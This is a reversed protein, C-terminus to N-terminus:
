RRLFSPIHWKHAALGSFRSATWASASIAQVPVPGTRREGKFHLSGASLLLLPLIEVARNHGIVIEPM